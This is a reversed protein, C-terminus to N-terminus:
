YMRTGKKKLMESRTMFVGDLIYKKINSVERKKPTYYFAKDGDVLFKAFSESVNYVVNSYLMEGNEGKTDILIRVKVM